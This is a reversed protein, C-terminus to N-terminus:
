PLPSTSPSWTRPRAQSTSGTHIRLHFTTEPGQILSHPEWGRVPSQAQKRRRRAPHRHGGPCALANCLRGSSLPQRMVPSCQSCLGPDAAAAAPGAGRGGGHGRGEARRSYAPRLHHSSQICHPWSHKQPGPTQSGWLPRGSAGPAGEVALIQPCPCQGTATGTGPPSVWSGGMQSGGRGTRGWCSSVLHSRM